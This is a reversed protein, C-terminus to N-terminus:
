SERYILKSILLTLQISFLGLVASGFDFFPKKIAVILAIGYLVYRLFFWKVIQLQKQKLGGKELLKLNTLSMIYFNVGSVVAGLIFGYALMPKGVAIFFVIFITSLILYEKLIKNRFVFYETM